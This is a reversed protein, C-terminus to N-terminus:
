WPCDDWIKNTKNIGKHLSWSIIQGLWTLCAVHFWQNKIAQKTQCCRWSYNCSYKYLNLLMKDYQINWLGTALHFYLYICSHCFSFFVSVQLRPHAKEIVEILLRNVEIEYFLCEINGRKRSLLWSWKTSVNGKEDLIGHQSYKLLFLGRFGLVSLCIPM